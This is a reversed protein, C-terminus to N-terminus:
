SDRYVTGVPRLDTLNRRLGSAETISNQKQWNKFYPKLPSVGRPETLQVASKLIGEAKAALEQMVASLINPPTAELMLLRIVVEDGSYIAIVYHREGEHEIVRLSGDTETELKVEDHIKM